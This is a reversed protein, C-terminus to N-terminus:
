TELAEKCAAVWIELPCFYSNKLRYLFSKPTKNLESPQKREKECAEKKQGLKSDLDESATLTCIM